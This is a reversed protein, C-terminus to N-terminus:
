IVPERLWRRYSSASVILDYSVREENKRMHLTCGNRQPLLNTGLALLTVSRVHARLMEYNFDCRLEIAGIM